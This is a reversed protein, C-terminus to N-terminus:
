FNYFIDKMFPQRYMLLSFLSTQFRLTHQAYVAHVVGSWGVYPPQHVFAMLTHKCMM